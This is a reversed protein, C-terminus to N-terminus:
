ERLEMVSWSLFDTVDCPNGFAYSLVLFLADAVEDADKLVRENGMDNERPLNQLILVILEYDYPVPELSPRLPSFISYESLPLAARRGFPKTNYM